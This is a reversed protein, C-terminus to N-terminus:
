RRWSPFGAAASSAISMRWKRNIASRWTRRRPDLAAKATTGGMDFALVDKQGLLQGWYVGALAGGAPGSEVLRVPFARAAAVTTTGGSSLMINLPADIGSAGLGSAVRELYRETIPQVYANASTTSARPYERMGPAVQHSASLSVGATRAAVIELAALEHAPNTYAHM